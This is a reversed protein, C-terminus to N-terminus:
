TGIFIFDHKRAKTRLFTAFNANKAMVYQEAAGKKQKFPM